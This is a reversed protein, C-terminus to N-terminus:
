PRQTGMHNFLEYLDILTSHIQATESGALLLIHNTGQLLCYDGLILETHIFRYCLLCLIVQPERQQYKCLEYLILYNRIRPIYKM